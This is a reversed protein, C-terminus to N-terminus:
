KKTIMNGASNAAAANTCKPNWFGTACATPLRKFPEYPRPALAPLPACFLPRDLVLSPVVAAAGYGCLAAIMFLTGTVGAVNAPAM